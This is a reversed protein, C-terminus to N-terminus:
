EELPIPPGFTNSINLTLRNRPFDELVKELNLELGELDAIKVDDIQITVLVTKM